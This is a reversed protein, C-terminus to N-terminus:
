ARPTARPTPSARTPTAPEAPPPPHSAPPRPERTKPQPARPQATPASQPQPADPLPFEIPVAGRRSGGRGARPKPDGAVDALKSLVNALEEPSRQPSPSRGRGQGSRASM